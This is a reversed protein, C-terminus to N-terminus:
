CDPCHFFEKMGKLIIDDPINVHGANPVAIFEHRSAIKTNLAKGHAFPVVEDKTGHFILVPAQLHGVKSFSDFSDRVFYQIFPLYWDIEHTMQTISRYPSQLIVGAVPYETAMQVAVGTGLSEGFLLIHTSPYNAKLWDLASRADNYLGIESPSGESRGYGRWSLAMVGYGADALAIYRPIRGAIHMANGHFYVVIPMGKAPPHVWAVLRVNDHTTFSIEKFDKLGYDAPMRLAGNSMNAIYAPFILYRQLLFLALYIIFVARLIRWSVTKAVAISTQRNLRV